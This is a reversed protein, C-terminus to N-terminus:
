GVCVCVCVCLVVSFVVRGVPSTSDPDVDVIQGHSRQMVIAVLFSRMSVLGPLQILVQPTYTYKMNITRMVKIVM